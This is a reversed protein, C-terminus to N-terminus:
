LAKLAEMEARHEETEIRRIRDQAEARKEPSVRRLREILAEVSDDASKEELKANGRMDEALFEREVPEIVQAHWDGFDARNLRGSQEQLKAHAYATASAALELAGTDIASDHAAGPFADEILRDCLARHLMPTVGSLMPDARVVAAAIPAPLSAPDIAKGEKALGRVYARAEQDHLFGVGDSKARTPLKPTAVAGALKDIEHRIRHINRFAEAYHPELAARRGLDSLNIDSKIAQAHDGMEALLKELRAGIDVAAKPVPRNSKAYMEFESKTM